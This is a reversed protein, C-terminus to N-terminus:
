DGAKAVAAVVMEPTVSDDLGTIRISAYKTRQVVSAVDKLAARLEKTLREAAEPTQGKTLEFLRAGTAARRINLGGRMGLETLSVKEAARQLAEYYTVGKSIVEPRLTVLVVPTRPTDLKPKRAKMATAAAAAKDDEVAAKEAGSNHRRRCRVVTEEEEQRRHGM